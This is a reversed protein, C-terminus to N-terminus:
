PKIKLGYIASGSGCLGSALYGESLFNERIELLQPYKEFVVKEFDNFLSKQLLELDGEELAKLINFTKERRDKICEKDIEDYAWKTSISISPIKEISLQFKLKNQKRRLEEGRGIGLCTGGLIFFPIDSGFKSALTLLKEESLKGKHLINLGKLVAAANSSGGGLGAEPPIKKDITITCSPTENIEEYYFKAAKYALNIEQPIKKNLEEQAFNVEIKKSDNLKIQVDDFLDENEYFITEIEHFGDDRKGKIWLGLNIKSTSKLSITDGEVLCDNGIVQHKTESIMSKFIKKNVM